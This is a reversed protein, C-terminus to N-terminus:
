FVIGFKFVLASVVGKSDEQTFDYSGSPNSKAKIGDNGTVDTLGRQWYLGGQLTYGDLMSKEIGFGMGWSINFLNVDKGIKENASRIAGGDIEGKSRTIFGLTFVPFEVFYKKVDRELIFKAGVPIEMVTLSYALNTDDPLPKSGRNLGPDSLDSKPWLNGGIKHLLKGGHSLGFGFGTTVSFYDRVPFEITGGFKVGLRNGNSNILNDESQLWSIVPSLQVGFQAPIDQGKINSGRVILIQLILFFCRIHITM